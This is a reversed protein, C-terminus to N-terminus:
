FKGDNDDTNPLAYREKCPLALGFNSNRDPSGQTAM